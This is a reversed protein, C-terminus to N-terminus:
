STMLLPLPARVTRCCRDFLMSIYNLHLNLPTTRPQLSPANPDLVIRSSVIPRNLHIASVQRSVASSPARPPPVYINSAVASSGLSQVNACVEQRFSPQFLTCSTRPSSTSVLSQGYVCFVHLSTCSLTHPTVIVLAPV